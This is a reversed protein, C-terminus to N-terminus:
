KGPADKDNVGKQIIREAERATDQKAQMEPQEAKEAPEYSLQIFMPFHDSGIDPLREMQLLKFHNSQFVHDLPWRFMPYQAHFTSYFGRGVRPDLLGSVEQFLKSNPSWAVDNFDGVVLVPGKAAAAMKGIIVIEADRERSDNSEGPVPPRPHVAYLQVWKGSRLQLQTQISPIDPELLYMVETDKLPLRSYLHMGYTNSKPVQVRYPYAAMLQQMAEQWVTDSELTLLLDPQLQRVLKLLENHKKNFQLVNSVLLSVTTTDAVDGESQLVQKSAFPTYPFAKVAQYVVVGLLVLMLVRGRKRRHYYFVYFLVLALAALLLAQMRPYDWMRVYWRSSPILPLLTAVLVLVILGWFLFKWLYRFFAM